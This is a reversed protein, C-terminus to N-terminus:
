RQNHSTMRFTCKREPSKTMDLSQMPVGLEIQSRCWNIADSREEFGLPGIQMMEICFKRVRQAGFNLRLGGRQLDAYVASDLSVGCFVIAGTEINERAERKLLEVASTELRYVYTMDIVTFRYSGAIEKRSKIRAEISPVTGFVVAILKSSQSLSPWLRCIYGSLSLVSVRSLCEIRKRGLPRHIESRDQPEVDVLNVKPLTDSTESHKPSRPGNPNYFGSPYRFYNGEQDM